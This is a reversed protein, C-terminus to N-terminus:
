RESEEVIADAVEQTERSIRRLKEDIEDRTPRETRGHRKRLLARARDVRDFVLEAGEPSIAYLAYVLRLFYDIPNRRGTAQQEEATLPERTWRKVTDVHVDMMEAFEAKDRGRLARRLVKWGEMEKSGRSPTM